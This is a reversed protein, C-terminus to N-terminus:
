REFDEDNRHRSLFKLISAQEYPRFLRFIM